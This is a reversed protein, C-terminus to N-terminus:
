LVSGEAFMKRQRNYWLLSLLRNIIIREILM